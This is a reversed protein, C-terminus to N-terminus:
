QRGAWQMDYSENPHNLWKTPRRKVMGFPFVLVAYFVTLLVRAQFNGIKHAIRKWAHWMRKL